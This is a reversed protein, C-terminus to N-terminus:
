HDVSHHTLCSREGAVPLNLCAKDGFFRRAAKDYAIAAELETSYVGLYIRRRGPLQIQAQWRGTDKHWSVGKYMSTTPCRHKRQNMANESVSCARLNQRRNDLTDHNIHDVVVRPNTLGLIDRHMLRSVRQNDVRTKRIAYFSGTSQCLRACWRFETLSDFDDDDVISVQGQTLQIRKM